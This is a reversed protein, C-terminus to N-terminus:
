TKREMQNRHRNDETIDDAIQTEETLSLSQDERLGCGSSGVDQRTCTPSLQWASIILRHLIWNAQCYSIWYKVLEDVERGSIAFTSLDVACCLQGIASLLLRHLIRALVM